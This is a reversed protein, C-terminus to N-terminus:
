NGRTTSVVFTERETDGMWKGLTKAAEEATVGAPYKGVIETKAAVPKADDVSKWAMREARRMSGLAPVMPLIAGAADLGLDGAAQWSPEYVFRGLSIVAPVYDGAYWDVRKAMAPVM